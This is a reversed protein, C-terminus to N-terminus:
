PTTLARVKRALTQLMAAALGADSRMATEIKAPLEDAIYDIKADDDTLALFTAKANKLSM